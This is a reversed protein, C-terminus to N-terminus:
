KAATGLLALCFGLLCSFPDLDETRVYDATDAYSGGGFLLGTEGTQRVAVCIQTALSRHPRPVHWLHYSFATARDLPGLNQPSRPLAHMGTYVYRFVYM